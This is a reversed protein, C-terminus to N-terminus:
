LETGLRGGAVAHGVEAANALAVAVRVARPSPEAPLEVALVDLPGLETAAVQLLSSGGAGLHVLVLRGGDRRAAEVADLLMANDQWRFSAGLLVATGAPHPPETSRAPRLGASRAALAAAVPHSDSGLIHWRRRTFGAPNAVPKEVARRAEVTSAHVARDPDSTVTAASGPPACTGMTTM